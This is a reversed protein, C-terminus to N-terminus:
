PGDELPLRVSLRCGGADSLDRAMDCSMRHILFLGRGRAADPPPPQTVDRRLVERPDKGTGPDVVELHVWGAELRCLVVVEETGDAKSGHEIANQLMETLVLGADEVREEDCGQAALLAEVMKRVPRVNSLDTPCGLRLPSPLAEPM